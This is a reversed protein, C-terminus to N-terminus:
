NCATASIGSGTATMSDINGLGGSTTSVLSIDNAGARLAVTVSASNTWTTWAGTAPLAVTSLTAGNVRLSAPRNDASGNAFRWQLTFNGAASANVRWRVGANLANNTNAFGTGTYGANNSDVTGDVGCFGTLNEQLMVSNGPPPPTTGELFADLAITPRGNTNWVGKTYGQWNFAQPEWYLVGLGGANRSRTIIDQLFAKSATAQDFSMGVEVIMVGKGYRARMDNLNSITQNNLTQWNGPEPYLSMGIIDWRAGNARLGDFNWRFLANDYGNSVHVIVKSNPSV